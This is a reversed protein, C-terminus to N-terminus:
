PVKSQANYCGVDGYGLDDALIFVINPLKSANAQCSLAVLFLVLSFWCAHRKWMDCSSVKQCKREM